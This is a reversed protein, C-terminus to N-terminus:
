AMESIEVVCYDMGTVLALRRGPIVLAQGPVLVKDAIDGEVTIWACGQVCRVVQQRSACSRLPKGYRLVAERIGKSVNRERDLRSWLAGCGM